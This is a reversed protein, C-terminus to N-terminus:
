VGRCVCLIVTSSLSRLGTVAESHWTSQVYLSLRWKQVLGFPLQPAALLLKNGIRLHPVLARMGPILPLATFGKVRLYHLGKDVLVM